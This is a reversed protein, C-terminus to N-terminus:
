RWREKSYINMLTGKVVEKDHLRYRLLQMFKMLARYEEKCEKTWASNNTGGTVTATLEGDSFFRKIKYEQLERLLKM